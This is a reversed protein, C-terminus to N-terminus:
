IIELGKKGNQDFRFSEILVPLARADTRLILIPNKNPATVELVFSYWAASASISVALLPYGLSEAKM